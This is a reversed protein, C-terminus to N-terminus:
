RARAQGRIAQWAKNITRDIYDVQRTQNGKHALDRSAIARRVRSEPVGHSLAYIAYALDIRHGDGQYASKQRFEEITHVSGVQATPALFRQRRAAREQHKKELEARAQALLSPSEPYVGGSSEILKVFPYLGGTGRHKEKRNTFGALRGFHRWDASSLDGNFKTALSRAVATSLEKSLVEGHNLWAQFNEPSTEIVLAPRFGEAKMRQVSQATLDDVLSLSHEGKPRIYINRGQANQFRLWGVSRLLTASDWTRPLMEPEQDAPHARPKFAGVEFVPGRMAGVQAQVVELTSKAYMAFNRKVDWQRARYM